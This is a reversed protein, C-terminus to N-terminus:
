ASSARFTARTSFPRAFPKTPSLGAADHVDPGRRGDATPRSYSESYSILGGYTEVRYLYVRDNQTQARRMSRTVCRAYLPIDLVLSKVRKIRIIEVQTWDARETGDFDDPGM